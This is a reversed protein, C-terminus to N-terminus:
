EFSLLFKLTKEIRTIVKIKGMTYLIMDLAPSKKSGTIAIRLPMSVESLKINLEQASSKIAYSINNVTWDTIISLKNRVIKLATISTPHIIDDSQNINFDKYLYHSSVIIEKLTKCRERFLEVLQILTPGSSIDINENDIHWKLQTAVYNIPLTKIYQHNLWLLKKPNLTSASKSVKELTFLSKMEEITFIEKDGCSWGLRVLYNLLAEPLYGNDRYQMINLSGQRKSLRTGNEDLIIPVHAYAPIYAGLARLINLQRFTNSIHDEGRIVHTIQMDWDDIAVCFNYTPLGNSRRIILDDLECNNVRISGRILDTFSNIGQRPNCFRVVYPANIIHHNHYYSERCHGDYRAKKGEAIQSLRLKELRNKTCYCKYATGINLMHEIVENYRTLRTSQYFPGQDWDLKLWKMSDIILNIAKQSSRERDTDEIRLIFEGGHHHAFLWSYLATRINGLHLYGTPSPAFRTKIKM